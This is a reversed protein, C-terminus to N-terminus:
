SDLNKQFNVRVHNKNRFFAGYAFRDRMKEVFIM